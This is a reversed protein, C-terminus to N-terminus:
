RLVSAIKLYGEGISSATNNWNSLSFKLALKLFRHKNWNEKLQDNSIMSTQLYNSEQFHHQWQDKGIAVFFDHKLKDINGLLTEEFMLKYKGSLHLTISFFNGWWFMTRIAFIDEGKFYAPYDLMVYPLQLYNEGKYIRPLSSTIEGPLVIANGNLSSSIVPVLESFLNYVKNIIVQKTLIWGEDNVLSLEKESLVIKTTDTM